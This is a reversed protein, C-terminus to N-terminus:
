PRVGGIAIQEVTYAPAPCGRSGEHFARPFRSRRASQTLKGPGEDSARQQRDAALEEYAGFGPSRDVAPDLTAFRDCAVGFAGKVRRGHGPCQYASSSPQEQPV